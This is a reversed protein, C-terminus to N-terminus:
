QVLERASPYLYPIHPDGLGFVTLHWECNRCDFPILNRYVVVVLHGALGEPEADFNHSDPWGIGFFEGVAMDVTRTPVVM